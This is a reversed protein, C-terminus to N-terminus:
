GFCFVFFSVEVHNMPIHSFAYIDKLLHVIINQLGEQKEVLPHLPTSPEAIQNLFFFFFILVRGEM